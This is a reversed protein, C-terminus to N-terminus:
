TPGAEAVVALVEALVEVFERLRVPARPDYAIGRARLWCRYKRSVRGLKYCTGSKTTVMRGHTEVVRTTTVRTGDCRRPDGRVRGMLHMHVPM